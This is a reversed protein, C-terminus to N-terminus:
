ARSLINLNCTGATMYKGSFVNWNSVKVWGTNAGPPLRYAQASASGVLADVTNDIDASILVESCAVTSLAAAVAGLAIQASAVSASSSTTVAISTNTFTVGFVHTTGNWVDLFVKLLGKLLSVVTWPDTTATTAPPDAKAGQTVDAGDAVTVAGGGSGGAVVNVKLNRNADLAVVALTGSAPTDAPTVVGMAPTGLTVGVAFAGKDTSATGGAGGGGVINVNVTGVQEVPMPNVLTVDSGASDKIWAGTVFPPNPSAM